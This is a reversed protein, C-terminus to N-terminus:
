KQKMNLQIDYPLCFVLLRRDRIKAIILMESQLCIIVSMSSLQLQETDTSIIIHIKLFTKVQKGGGRVSFAETKSGIQTFPAKVM